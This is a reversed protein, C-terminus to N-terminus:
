FLASWGVKLLVWLAWLSIVVRASKGSGLTGDSVAAFGISLLVIIWFSFADVSALVANLVPHAKASALIGFNSVVNKAPDLELTDAEKVFMFLIGLLSSLMKAPIMAWFSVSLAKKYPITGGVLMFSVMFISALIFYTVLVAIPVAVLGGYRELPSQPRALAQQIARDRQEQSLLPMMELSRTIRTERDIRLNLVFASSMGLICMVVFPGLWAPRRNIDGFAKKPDFYVGALRQFFNMPVAASTEATTEM